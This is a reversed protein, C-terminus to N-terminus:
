LEYKVPPNEPHQLWETLNSDTHKLTFYFCYSSILTPWKRLFLQLFQAADLSSLYSVSYKFSCPFLVPAPETWYHTAWYTHFPKVGKVKKCIQHSTIKIVRVRWKVCGLAEFNCVVSWNRVFCSLIQHSFGALKKRWVYLSWKSMQVNLLQSKRRINWDSSTFNDQRRLINEHWTLDTCTRFSSSLFGLFVLCHRSSIRGGTTKSHHSVWNQRRLKNWIHRFLLCCLDALVLNFSLYSIRSIQAYRDLM